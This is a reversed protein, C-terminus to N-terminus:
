VAWDKKIEIMKIDKPIEETYDASGGYYGNSSNRYVILGTGKNTTIRVGYIQDEGQRSEQQSVKEEDFLKAEEVRIVKQGIINKLRNVDSFYTESCCDGYGVYNVNGKNTQFQLYTQSDEDIFIKKIKKGLLEKM